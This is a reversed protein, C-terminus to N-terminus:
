LWYISYKQIVIYIHKKLWTVKIVIFIYINKFYNATETVQIQTKISIEEAFHQKTM